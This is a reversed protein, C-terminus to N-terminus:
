KEPTITIKQFLWVDDRQYITKFDSNQKLQNVLNRVTEESNEWGPHRENLLIYTFNQPDIPEADKIALKVKVRQSLHPAITPSTLLSDQTKVLHISEHMAALNDWNEWYRGFFYGYKGLVLFTILSWIIIIKSSKIWSKNNALSTIVALLLFPLITLSYQHTLDKQPSYDTLLNLLLAPLAPVLPTLHQLSLGWIVPITLLILYGLNELTFIRSFLINPKFILNQIIEVVSNGLFSYRGVAAVEGGSFHPIIIKTTIIFWAIGSVLAIFGEVQRKEWIILWFGMVAVTLTLVAKCSLIILIALIFRKFQKMRATYIAWILAPLAIVEPHFDFLNLNFIMPYLLYAVAIALCQDPKLEAQKALLWTPWAGLSLAIAQILFLWYVSPYLKYFLAIPYLIFAAHDGLIHFDQFSVIPNEGRSILYIAQDFWGLDLANSQFLLHRIISTILFIVTAIGMMGLLKLPPLQLKNIM